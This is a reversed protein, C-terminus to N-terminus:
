YKLNKINEILSKKVIRFNFKCIIVVYLKWIYICMARIVYFPFVFFIIKICFLIYKLIYTSQCLSVLVDVLLDSVQVQIWDGHIHCSCISISVPADNWM